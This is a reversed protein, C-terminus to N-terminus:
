PVRVRYRAKRNTRQLLPAWVGREGAQFRAARLIRGRRNCRVLRETNQRALHWPRHSAGLIGCPKAWRFIGSAWFDRCRSTEVTEYNAFKELRAFMLITKSQEPHYLDM